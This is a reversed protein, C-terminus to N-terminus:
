EQDFGVEKRYNNVSLGEFRLLCNTFYEQLRRLNNIKTATQIMKNADKVRTTKLYDVMATKAETLSVARYVQETINTLTSQYKM